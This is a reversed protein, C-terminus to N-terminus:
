AEPPFVPRGEEDLYCCVRIKRDQREVLAFCFLPVAPFPSNEGWTHCLVLGREWRRWGWGGQRFIRCLLPDPLIPERETVNQWAGAPPAARATEGAWGVEVREPPYVGASELSARTLSRTLALGGNEPAPTGLLVRHEGGVLWLKCIGTQDPLVCYFRLRLQDEEYGARGIEAGGSLCPLRKRM